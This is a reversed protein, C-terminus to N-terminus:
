DFSGGLRSLLVFARASRTDALKALQPDTANAGFEHLIVDFRRQFFLATDRFIADSTMLGRVRELTAPDRIAGVSAVGEGREGAIFRRWGDPDATELAADEMYVGEQSLFNLVDEAAQLMRALSPHRLAAKLARFGERDEGDRPFDLARILDPWGLGFAIEEPEEKPSNLPAPVAAIQSEAPDDEARIPDAAQGSRATPESFGTVPRSAIDAIVRHIEAQGELLQEIRPGHDPHAGILAGQVAKRIDAPSAAGHKELTARTAELAEMMPAAAEALAAVVERQRALEEALFAAMWILMLPLIAAALFFVADLFLTGRPESAGFLFALSYAGVLVSWILSALLAARRPSSVSLADRLGATRSM